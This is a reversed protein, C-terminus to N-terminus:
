AQKNGAAVMQALTTAQQTASQAQEQKMQEESPPQPMPVAFQVGKELAMQAQQQWAGLQQEYMRVSQTKRFPKLDAGRLSM